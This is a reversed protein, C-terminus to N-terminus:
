GNVQLDAAPHAKFVRWSQRFATKLLHLLEVRRLLDALDAPRSKRCHEGQRAIAESM